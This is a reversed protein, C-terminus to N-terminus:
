GGFADYGTIDKGIILRHVDETGEYTNVTELNLMHRIIPYEDIIGNAGLVDRALRAIRLANSVNNMKAMSIQEPRARGADKLRGLRLCLLQAKTIETVMTVLKRQVLQFAAIPKDFMIRQRAYDLACDYCASAAGVAGWAIGYRAQSLCSLPAKMSGSGPLRSEEPVWCDDLFLESTLSARLSFKGHMDRTTFGARGREVLFGHVGEGELRAWVVAVDAISGNTIWRKVGNLVFGGDRRRATTLMGAPNSGFDPETLGFCGIAEGRALRPLWTERQEDSGFTFIPYMVLGSQVSAFSRLGSDGRELEQNILGYAVSNLNACGYREPLNSGFFGLAALRPVVQMPFTGDRFAETVLPLYEDEVFRRATDRVMREDESLLEEIAYYDPPDYPM